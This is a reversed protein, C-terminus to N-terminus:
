GDFQKIREALWKVVSVVVSNGVCRYRASDSGAPLTFGDPLGMLREDKTLSAPARTFWDRMQDCTIQRSTLIM